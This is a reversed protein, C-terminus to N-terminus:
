TDPAWEPRYDPHDAYPLALVQLNWVAGSREPEGRRIMHGCEAMIRRKADVEALARTASMLVTTGQMTALRSGQGPMPHATAIDSADEDLRGRLFAVLDATM